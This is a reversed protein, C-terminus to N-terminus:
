KNSSIAYVRITENGYLTSKLVVLLSAKWMGEFNTFFFSANAFRPRMFFNGCRGAAAAAARRLRRLSTIIDDVSVHMQRTSSLWRCHVHEVAVAVANRYVSCRANIWFLLTRCIHRSRTVVSGKIGWLKTKLLVPKDSNATLCRYSEAPLCLV